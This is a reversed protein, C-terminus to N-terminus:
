SGDGMDNWLGADIDGLAVLAPDIAHPDGIGAISPLAAGVALGLALSCALAAAQTWRLPMWSLARTWGHASSPRRGSFAALIRDELDRTAPATQAADLMRDFAAEAELLRVAHPSAAAFAKAQERSEAPWRRMDAGYAELLSEFKEINM